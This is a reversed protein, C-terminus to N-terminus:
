LYNERLFAQFLLLTIECYNLMEKFEDILKDVVDNFVLMTNYAEEVEYDEWDEFDEEDIFGNLFGNGKYTKSGNDNFEVGVMVIHGGSRGRVDLEYRRNTKDLLMDSYKNMLYNTLDVDCSLLSYAKEEQEETLNLNYIKVNRTLSKPSYSGGCLPYKEANLLREIMENRTIM